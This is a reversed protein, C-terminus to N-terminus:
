RGPRFLGRALEHPPFGPVGVQGPRDTGVSGVGTRQVGSTVTFPLGTMLTAIGLLQWGGTLKKGLLRLGPARDLHFDRFLSFTRLGRFTWPPRDKRPM